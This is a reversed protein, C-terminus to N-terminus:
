NMREQQSLGVQTVQEKTGLGMTKKSYINDAATASEGETPIQTAVQVKVYYKEGQKKSESRGVINGEDDYRVNGSFTDSGLKVLKGGVLAREEQTFDSFQEVPIYAYKLQYSNVGDTVQKNEGKIIFDTFKNGQAWLNEFKNRAIISKALIKRDKAKVNEMGKPVVTAARTTGMMAYALNDALIFNSSDNARYTNSTIKESAGQKSYIDAAEPSLPSTLKDLVYNAGANISKKNKSVISFEKRLNNQINRPDLNQALIQREEPTPIDGSMLQKVRDGGLGSFNELFKKSSDRQVITTLNNLQGSEQANKAAKAQLRMSEMFWPDRERTEYAFERGANLLTTNLKYEAEEPSYGQSQLVELHKAYEPTNQISSLNKMLEQDTRQASVGSYEWGGKNGIWSAKLNDVFPKVLEVESKYALPAVENFVGRTPDLTNYNTFDVDHWLPNYKGELMLKQNAQQRSLLGERSQKLLGLKKYDVSNIMSQLKSRGEATKMLDPNSAMEEITPAMKGITLDYYSQTDRASPSYFESWKQLQNGLQNQAQEVAQKQTSGIRYLENFNIPVYTNLFKAQAPQDYLNSEM